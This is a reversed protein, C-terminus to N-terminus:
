ELTSLKKHCDTGGTKILMYKDAIKEVTHRSHFKVVGRMRDYPYYVEIGDLGIKILSKVFSDLNICWYCAPHALVAIGGSKHIAQILHEVNRTSFLRRIDSTKDAHSKALFPKLDESNVDIGYGLLHFFVYGFWCDFEIGTTVILSTLLGSNKYADLTNHDTIAIHELGLEYAQELIEDASYTGDSSNTHIHLNVTHKFDEKTLSKIFDTNM